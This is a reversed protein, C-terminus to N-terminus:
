SMWRVCQEKIGESALDLTSLVAANIKEGVANVLHHELHMAAYDVFRTSAVDLYSDVNAMVELVGDVSEPAEADALKSYLKEPSTIDTFGLNALTMLALNVKHEYEPSEGGVLSYRRLRTFAATDEDPAQFEPLLSTALTSSFSGHKGHSSSGTHGGSSSLLTTTNTGRGRSLSYMHSIKKIPSMSAARFQNALIPVPSENGVNQDLTALQARQRLNKYKALGANTSHLSRAKISFVSSAEMTYLDSLKGEVLNLSGALETNAISQVIRRLEEGDGACGFHTDVLTRVLDDLTDRVSHLCSSIHEDWTAVVIRIMEEQVASASSTQKSTSSGYLRDWVDELYLVTRGGEKRGEPSEELTLEDAESIEGRLWPRFKPRSKEVNERFANYAQEIEEYVEACDNKWRPVGQRGTSLDSTFQTLLTILKLFALSSTMTAPTSLPPASNFRAPAPRTPAPSRPSGEVNPPLPYPDEELEREAVPIAKRDNSSSRRTSPLSVVSRPAPHSKRRRLISEAPAQDRSAPLVSESVRRQSPAPTLHDFPVVTGAVSPSQPTIMDPTEPHSNLRVEDSTPEQRPTPNFFLDTTMVSAQSQMGTRPAVEEEEQHPTVHASYPSSSRSRSRSRSRSSTRPRVISGVSMNFTTTSDPRIAEPTLSQLYAQVVVTPATPAKAKSHRESSAKWSRRTPSRGRTGSGSGESGDSSRSMNKLNSKRRQFVPHGSMERETSTHPLRGPTEPSHPRPSVPSTLSQEPFPTPALPALPNLRSPALLRQSRLAPTAAPTTYRFPSPLPSFPSPSVLATLAMPDSTEGDTVLPIATQPRSQADGERESELNVQNDEVGPAPQKSTPLPSLITTHTYATQPFTREFVSPPVPFAKFVSPPFPQTRPSFPDYIHRFSRTAIPSDQSSATAPSLHLRGPLLAVIDVKAPKEWDWAEQVIEDEEVSPTSGEELTQKVCVDVHYAWQRVRDLEEPMLLSSIQLDYPHDSAYEEGNPDEVTETKAGNTTPPLAKPGLGRMSPYTMAPLSVIHRNFIQPVGNVPSVPRAQTSPTKSSSMHPALAIFDSPHSELGTSQTEVPQDDILSVYSDSSSMSDSKSSSPPVPSPRRAIAQVQAVSVPPTMSMPRYSPKPHHDTTRQSTSADGKKPMKRRTRVTPQRSSGPAHPHPYPTSIRRVRTLPPPRDRSSNSIQKSSLRGTSGVPPPAPEPVLSRIATPIPPPSSPRRQLSTRSTSAPHAEDSTRRRRRLTPKTFVQPQSSVPTPPPPPLPTFQSQGTGRLISKPLSVTTWSELQSNTSPPPPPVAPARVPKTVPKVFASSTGAQKAELVQHHKKTQTDMGNSARRAM